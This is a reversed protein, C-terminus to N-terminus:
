YTIIFNQRGDFSICNLVQLISVVFLMIKKFKLILGFYKNIHILLDLQFLFFFTNLILISHKIM